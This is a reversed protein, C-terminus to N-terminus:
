GFIRFPPPPLLLLRHHQSIRYYIHKEYKNIETALYYVFDMDVAVGCM